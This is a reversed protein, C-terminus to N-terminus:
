ISNFLSEPSCRTSICFKHAIQHFGGVSLLWRLHGLITLTGIRLPGDYGARISIPCDQVEFSSPFVLWQMKVKNDNTPRGRM